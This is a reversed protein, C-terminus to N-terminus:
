RSMAYRMLAAPTAATMVSAAPAPFSLPKSPDADADAYALTVPDIEVFADGARRSVKLGWRRERVVRADDVEGAPGRAGRLHHQVGLGTVAQPVPNGAFQPEIKM